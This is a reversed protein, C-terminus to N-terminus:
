QRGRKDAKAGVAGNGLRGDRSGKSIGAGLIQNWCQNNKNGDRKQM